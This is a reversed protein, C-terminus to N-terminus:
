STIRLNAYHNPPSYETVLFRNKPIPYNTKRSLGTKVRDGVIKITSIKPSCGM